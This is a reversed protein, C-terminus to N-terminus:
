QVCRFGVTESTAAADASNRNAVRLFAAGNSSAGGRISRRGSARPDDRGDAAYPYPRFLTATWEWVGGTLDVLGWSNTRRKEPDDSSETAARIKREDFADGWWYATATGARAAYEWEVESPLRKGAWSAYARAAHWSISVVPQRETGPPVTNGDWGKLYNADALEPRVAGKQWEPRSLVFRRYSSNSVEAVDIWFGSEIAVAHVSEDADRDPENLRSGMEFRGRPVLTMRRQDLPSVWTAGAIAGDPPFLAAVVAAPAGLQRVRAELVSIDAQGFDIGCSLIMQRIRIPPVGASILQRVDGEPLPTDCENQRTATGVGLAVVMAAVGGIARMRM